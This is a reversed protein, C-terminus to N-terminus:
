KIIMQIERIYQLLVYIDYNDSCSSRRVLARATRFPGEFGDADQGNEMGSYRQYQAAVILLLSM